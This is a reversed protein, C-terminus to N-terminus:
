TEEKSYAMLNIDDNRVIDKEESHFSNSHM